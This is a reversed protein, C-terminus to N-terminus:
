CLTKESPSPENYYAVPGTQNAESTAKAQFSHSGESLDTYSIPSTCNAWSGSDMRCQFTVNERDSTFTFNAYQLNTVSDPGSDLSVQPLSGNLQFVHIGSTTINVTYNKENSGYKLFITATSINTIDSSGNHIMYTLAQLPIKGSSDTKSDSGGFGSTAYFTQNDSVIKVDVNRYTYNYTDIVSIDLYNKLTLNIPKTWWYDTEQYIESANINSNFITLNYSADTYYNYSKIHYETINEFTLNSLILPNNDFHILYMNPRFINVGNEANRITVNDITTNRIFRTLSIGNDLTVDKISVGFVNSLALGSSIKSNNVFLKQEGHAWIGHVQSDKVETESWSYSSLTSNLITSNSVILEGYNRIVTYYSYTPTFNSKVLSGDSLILKAQNSIVFASYSLNLEFIMTSNYLEISGGPLITVNGLVYFVTNNYFTRNSIILDNSYASAAPTYSHSPAGIEYPESSVNRLIINGAVNDSILGYYDGFWNGDAVIDPNLNNDTYIAYNTFNHINNNNIKLNGYFERELFPSDQNQGNYFM